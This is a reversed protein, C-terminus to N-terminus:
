FGERNKATSLVNTLKTLPGVVMSRSRVIVMTILCRRGDHSSGGLLNGAFTLCKEPPNCDSASPVSRSPFGLLGLWILLM